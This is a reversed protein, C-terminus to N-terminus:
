IAKMILFSGTKINMKFLFPIKNKKAIREVELVGSPNGYLHVFIIARTKATIKQELDKADMNYTDPDIDTLVIKAGLRTVALATAIFTNAPIIVEDDRRIGLAELILSIADLGNAVGVCFDSQTFKAFNEEFQRLEPGLIYHGRDLIEDLRQKFDNVCSANIKKLDLFPVHM